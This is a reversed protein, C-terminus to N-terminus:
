QKKKELLLRCVINCPSQLESTHEESRNQEAAGSGIDVLNEFAGLRGIEGDLLRGLELQDDVELGGPREAQRNGLRQQDPGVLDDLSSGACTERRAPTKAPPQAARRRPAAPPFPTASQHERSGAVWWVQCLACRSRM